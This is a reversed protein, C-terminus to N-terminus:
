RGTLAAVLLRPRMLSRAPDVMGAVRMFGIGARPNTAAARHV